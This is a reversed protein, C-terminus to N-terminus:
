SASGLKYEYGDNRQLITLYKPHVDFGNLRFCPRFRIAVRGVHIGAHRGVPIVARVIDGTQFGMFYKRRPAHRIPFGYKNTGCRKRTGHGAAIIQLPMVGNTELQKPTSRGVCAADIWHHKELSLRSRNYKTRGGTGVEIDLDLKKLRWYLAWRTSNVAAVDRLCEEAHKQISPHGYEAATLTGKKQNCPGCALTLNSVRDTGGRSKPVIHEIQLPINSAGCYACRRGWKELLYERIEYGALRGQQYEVGSIEPNQLKQTDFKVLELSIASVPAYRCLRRVWTEINAVRSELSPPLWSAATRRNLFRPQRYRTKRSRRSKRLQKRNLMADRIRHGRHHLEAAFVIKAKEEDLIALGTTRSGPDIKLRLASPQPHSVKRKLIITFPYRRFVAAKGARLLRRAVAPHCPQLPKKETDIVFVFSM